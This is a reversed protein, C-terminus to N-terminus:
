IFRSEIIIFPKASTEDRIIPFKRAFTLPDICWQAVVFLFPWYAVSSTTFIRWFGFCVQPNKHSCECGVSASFCWRCAGMAARSGGEVAWLDELWFIQLTECSNREQNLRQPRLALAECLYIEWNACGFVRQWTSNCDKQHERKEKKSNKM